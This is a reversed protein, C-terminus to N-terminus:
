FVKITVVVSKKMPKKSKLYGAIPFFAPSSASHNPLSSFMCFMICFPLSSRFSYISEPSYGLIIPSTISLTFVNRNLNIFYFLLCSPHSSNASEMKCFFFFRHWQEPLIQAFKQSSSNYTVYLLLLRYSLLSYTISDYSFLAIKISQVCFNPFIHLLM